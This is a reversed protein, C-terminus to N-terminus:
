GFCGNSYDIANYGGNLDVGEIALKRMAAASLNESAMRFFVKSVQALQKGQSNLKEKLLRNEEEMQQIKEQERRRRITQFVKNM